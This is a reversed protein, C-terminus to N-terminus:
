SLPFPNTLNRDYGIFFQSLCVRSQPLSSYYPVVESGSSSVWSSFHSPCRKEVYARIHKRSVYMHLGPQVFPNHPAIAGM